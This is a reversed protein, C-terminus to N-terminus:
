KDGSLQESDIKKDISPWYYSCEGTSKDPKFHCYSQYKERSIAMYRYCKDRKHCTSNVCKTIDSM